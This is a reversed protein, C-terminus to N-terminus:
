APQQAHARRAQMIANTIARRADADSGTYEALHDVGLIHKITDYDFPPVKANTCQETAFAMLRRRRADLDAGNDPSPQPNQTDHHVEQPQTTEADNDADPDDMASALLNRLLLYKYGTTLAKSSAKDQTDRGEAVGRILRMAGSVVDTICLELELTVHLLSGDRDPRNDREANILRSGITLALGACPAAHRLHAALSEYSTYAYGHHTNRGDKVVAPLADQLRAIKAHLEAIAPWDPAIIDSGASAIHILDKTKPTDM